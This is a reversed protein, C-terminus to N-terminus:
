GSGAASANTMLRRYLEVHRNVMDNVSHRNLILERANRSLREALPSDELIRKCAKALEPGNGLSFILGTEDNSVLELNPGIDSVVVPVGCVMAEMLSNSMGEFSSPLCFVNLQSIIEQADPRHGLFFVRDRCGFSCALEALRDREPGDGALVLYVDPVAQRLLQYSWMLDTLCKQVALRGVFGILKAHDPLRLETRLSTTASPPQLRPDPIGNPIVTIQTEPIGVINQYFESVSNSNATMADLRRSLWRDVSLQWSSKWSDVCRESVVVKSRAPCVGPLRVYSNAAFLFSQVIDPSHQRLLRRLRVFTLPDFRFQKELVHVQIGASQLQDAYYGGRNLAIVQVDFEPSPLGTALLVLQREAGSQDLTPIVYSIRM